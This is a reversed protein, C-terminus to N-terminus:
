PAEFDFVSLDTGVPPTWGAQKAIRMWQPAAKRRRFIERVRNETAEDDELRCEKLLDEQTSPSLTSSHGSFCGFVQNNADIAWHNPIDWGRIQITGYAKLPLTPRSEPTFSINRGEFVVTTPGELLSEGPRTLMADEFFEPGLEPVESTDIATDSPGQPDQEMAKLEEEVKDSQGM